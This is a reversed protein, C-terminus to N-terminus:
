HSSNLRTSKRDRSTVAFICANKFTCAAAAAAVLAAAHPTQLHVENGAFGLALPNRTLAHVTGIHLGIGTADAKDRRNIPFRRAPDDGGRDIREFSYPVAASDIGVALGAIARTKMDLQRDSEELLRDLPRAMM